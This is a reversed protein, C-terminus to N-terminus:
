VFTRFRLKPAYNFRPPYIFQSVFCFSFSPSFFENAREDSRTIKRLTKWQVCQICHCSACGKKPRMVQPLKPTVRYFLVNRSIVLGSIRRYFIYLRSTYLYKYMHANARKRRTSMPSRADTYISCMNQMLPAMKATYICNWSFGVNELWGRYM